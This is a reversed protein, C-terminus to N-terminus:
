YGRPQFEIHIHTKYLIVDYHKKLRTKIEKVVEEPDVEKPFDRIRIDFAQDAYHLSTQSHKKDNLSTIGLNCGFEALVQEVIVIALLLGIANGPRVTDDTLYIM